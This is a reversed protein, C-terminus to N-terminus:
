PPLFTQAETAQNLCLKYSQSGALIKHLCSITLRAKQFGDDSPVLWKSVTM